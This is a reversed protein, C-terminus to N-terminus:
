TCKESIILTDILMIHHIDFINIHFILKRDFALQANRNFNHDTCYAHRRGNERCYMGMKGMNDTTDTIGITDLVVSTSTSFKKLVSIIDNHVREGTTRGSFVKFDLVPSQLKWHDDIYHTTMSSTWHDTTWAVGRRGGMEKETAKEALRGLREVEDRIGRRDFNTILSANKNFPKFMNRFTPRTFQNFSACESITWSTAALKFQQRIDELGLASPAKKRELFPVLNTSQTPTAKKSGLLEEYIKKHHSQIHRKLGSSSGGILNPLTSGTIRVKRPITPVFIGNRTQNKM